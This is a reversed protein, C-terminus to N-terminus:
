SKMVLLSHEYVYFGIGNVFFARILCPKVGVWLKGQKITESISRTIGAQMKTKITDLPYTLLWSTTGAISGSLMIPVDKERMKNYTTFYITNAPVERMAVIRLNKYSNKWYVDTLQQQRKIKYYDLPTMILSGILGSISGAIYTSKTQSYINDYVGFGIGCLFPAQVLPYKIGKYLNQLSMNPKKLQSSNQRWTKYTDFPHGILTQFLGSILGAYYHEM